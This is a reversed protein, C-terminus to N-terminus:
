EYKTFIHKDYVPLLQTSISATIPWLRFETGGGLLIGKRAKM